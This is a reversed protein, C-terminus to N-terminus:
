GTVLIRVAEPTTALHDPRCERIRGPRGFGWTVGCRAFGARRAGEVDNPGDGVMLVRGGAVGARELALRIPAPDPKRAATSDGGVVAAFRGRVGLGALVRESPREPKNSVVGLRLGPCAALAELMGAIGPYLSTRDLCHDLYYPRMVALARDITGADATGLARELLLRVGDGVYEEVVSLPLATLGMSTRVHNVAATIDERSDILTGDLDFLVADYRVPM